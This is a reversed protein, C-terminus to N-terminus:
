RYYFGTQKIKPKYFIHGINTSSFYYCTFDGLIACFKSFNRLIIKRVRTRQLFNRSINNLHIIFFKYIKSLFFFWIRNIIIPKCRYSGDFIRPVRRIALGHKNDFTRPMLPFTIVSLREHKVLSFSM